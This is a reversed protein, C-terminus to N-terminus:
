HGLGSAWLMERSASSYCPQHGSGVTPSGRLEKENLIREDGTKVFIGIM